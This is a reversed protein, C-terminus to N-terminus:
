ENWENPLYGKVADYIDIKGSIVVRPISISQHHLKSITIEDGGPIVKVVIDFIRHVLVLRSNYEISSRLASADEEYMYPDVPPYGAFLVFGQDLLLQIDDYLRFARIRLETNDGTAM